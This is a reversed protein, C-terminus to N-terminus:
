AIKQKKESARFSPGAAPSAAFFDRGAPAASSLVKKHWNLINVLWLPERDGLSEAESFIISGMIKGEGPVQVWFGDPQYVSIM